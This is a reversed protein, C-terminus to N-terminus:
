NLEITDNYSGNNTKVIVSIVLNGTKNFYLNLNELNLSSITDDLLIQNEEDFEKSDNTLKDKIKQIVNDYTLENYGLITENSLQKGNTLSFNFTKISTIESGDYCSFKGDIIIVSLYKASEIFNYNREDASFIGSEEYLIEKESDLKADAIKMVSKRMNDLETKLIENITDASLVNIVIDKYVIGPDSSVTEENEFYVLDKKSDKKILDIGEKRVVEKQEDSMIYKTAFFGGVVLVLIFFIFGILGIVDKRREISSSM